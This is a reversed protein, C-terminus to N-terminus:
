YTVALYQNSEGPYVDNFVEHRTLAGVSYARQEGNHDVGFVQINSDADPYGTVGEELITPNDVSRIAGLGLGYNFYRPDMGYTDRAHTVDWERGTRDIIVAPNQSESKPTPAPTPIPSPTPISAQTTCATFIISILAVLGIVLYPKPLHM